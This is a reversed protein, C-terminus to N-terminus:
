IFNNYSSLLDADQLCKSLFTETAGKKGVQFLAVVLDAVCLNSMFQHLPNHQQRRRLLVALVLGNGLLATAFVVALLMVEGLALVADREWGTANAGPAAPSGPSGHAGQAPTLPVSSWNFSTM